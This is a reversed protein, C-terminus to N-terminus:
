IAHNATLKAVLEKVMEQPSGQMMEVESRKEPEFVETVITPSGPIGILNIDCGLDEYSWVPIEKRFAKMINVPKSYRPTNLHKTVTMVVPLKVRVKEKGEELMRTATVFGGVIDVQSVFTIQKFDLFEAVIPGTQGTDADVAHSGFLVIDVDGIKKVAKSLVYGTALTDAGGMERCSLLRAHDCGMALAERLAEITQPPGMSIATIEGGHKEKLRIAEEIANKDFPNIVGTINTRDLNKTVPNIRVDMTDPVQKICVVINM